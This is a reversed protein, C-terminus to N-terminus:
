LKSLGGGRHNGSPDGTRQEIPARGREAEALWAERTYFRIMPYKQCILRQQRRNLGTDLVILGSRTLGLEWLRCYRRIMAIERGKPCTVVAECRVTGPLLLGFVIWGACLAGFAALFGMLVYWFM